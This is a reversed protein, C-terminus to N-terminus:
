PLQCDAANVHLRTHVGICSTNADDNVGAVVDGCPFAGTGPAWLPKTTLVGGEYRDLVGAGVDRTGSGAGRLRSAVPLYVLCDGLDPAIAVRSAVHADDPQYLPASAATAAPAGACHDFSWDNEGDARFGTTQFDVILIGVEEAGPQKDLKRSLHRTEQRVPITGGKEKVIAIM